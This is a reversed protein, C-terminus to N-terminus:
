KRPTLTEKALSAADSNPYESVVRELFLRGESKRGADWLAKGVRYLGLGAESTKPYRLPVLRYVSDAAPLNREAQYTEGIKLLARPANENDPYSAMLQELSRRGTAYAGQNILEVASSYLTAAGPLGTPAV